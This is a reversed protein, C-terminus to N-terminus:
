QEKDQKQLNRVGLEEGFALFREVHEQAVKTKGVYMFDLMSRLDEVKVGKLYLLPHAHPNRKIISKFFTSSASLITKHAELQDDDCALTIDFLEGEDRLEKLSSSLTDGFDNWQLEFEGM